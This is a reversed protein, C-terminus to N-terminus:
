ILVELDEFFDDLEDFSKVGVKEEAAGQVSFGEVKIQELFQTPPTGELPLDVLLPYQKAWAELQDAGFPTGEQIDPWTLGGKNFQLLFYDVADKREEMLASLEEATIYAEVVIEQIIEVKGKLAQLNELPTLMGLQVTELGLVEIAAEIEPLTALSFEGCIKVGDVWERLAAVLQLDVSEETGPSLMFGLWNTEWAAFYRADTLHTIASAKVKTSLM